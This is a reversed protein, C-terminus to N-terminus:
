QYKYKSTIFEGDRWKCGAEVGLALVAFGPQRDTKLAVDAAIGLM